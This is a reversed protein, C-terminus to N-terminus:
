HPLQHGARRGLRSWSQNRLGNPCVERDSIPIISIWLRKQREKKDANSVDDGRQVM